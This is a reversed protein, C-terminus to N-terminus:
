FFRKGKRVFEEVDSKTPFTFYTKKSADNEMLTVENNEILDVAKAIAEM